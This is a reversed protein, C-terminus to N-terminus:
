GAGARHWRATSSAARPPRRRRARARRGGRPLRCRLPSSSGSSGAPGSGPPHGACRAGASPQLELQEVAAPVQEELM